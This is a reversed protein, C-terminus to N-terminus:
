DREAQDIVLCHPCEPHKARHGPDDYSHWTKLGALVQDFLKVAGYENLAMAIIDTLSERTLHIESQMFDGRQRVKFAAAAVKMAHARLKGFAMRMEKDTAPRKARGATQIM